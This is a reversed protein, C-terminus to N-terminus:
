PPRSADQRDQSGSARRDGASSAKCGYPGGRSGIWPRAGWRTRCSRSIALAGWSAERALIPARLRRSIISRGGCNGSSCGRASFLGIISSVHGAERRPLADGPDDRGVRRSSAVHEFGITLVDGFTGSQPNGRKGQGSLLGALQDLQDLVRRGALLVEEDFQQGGANRRADVIGGLDLGREQRSDGRTLDGAREDGALLGDLEEAGHQAAEVDHRQNLGEFAGVARGGRFGELLGEQDEVVEVVDLLEGVLAVGVGLGHDLGPGVGLPVGRAGLDGGRLLQGDELDGALGIGVVERGSRIGPRAGVNGKM